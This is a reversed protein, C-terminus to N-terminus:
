DILYEDPVSVGLSKLQKALAIMTFKARSSSPINKKLAKLIRVDFSITYTESGEPFPKRGRKKWESKPKKIYAM